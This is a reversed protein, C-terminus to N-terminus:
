KYMTQGLLLVDYVLRIHCTLITFLFSDHVCRLQSCTHLCTILIFIDIHFCFSIWIWLVWYFIQIADETHQACSTLMRHTTGHTSSFLIHFKFRKTIAEWVIRHFFQIFTITNKMRTRFMGFRDISALRANSQAWSLPRKISCSLLLIVSRASSLSKALPM